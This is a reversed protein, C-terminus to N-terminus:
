LLDKFRTTPSAIDEVTFQLSGYWYPYPQEEYTRLIVPSTVQYRDALVDARCTEAALADLLNLLVKYGEFDPTFQMEEESRQHLGPDYVVATLRLKTETADEAFTKEDLGILVCPISLDPDGMVSNPPMWGVYAIPHKLKYALVEQSQAAEMSFQNLVASQYYDKIRELQSVTM